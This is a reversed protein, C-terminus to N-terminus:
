RLVKSSRAPHPAVFVRVPLGCRAFGATPGQPVSKGPKLAEPARRGNLKARQARKACRRRTLQRLESREGGGFRGLGAGGVRAAAQGGAGKRSLPASRRIARWRMQLLSARPAPATPRPLRHPGCARPRRACRAEYVSEGASHATLAAFPALHVARGRASSRLPTPGGPVSRRVRGVTGTGRAARASRGDCAPPCECKM